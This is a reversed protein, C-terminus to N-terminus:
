DLPIRGANDALWDDLTQLEPNLARARDLDRVGAYEAAFDRNFQFMNGLEDAGPFGFGRYVDPDVDVYRVQEGLAASLKAAIQAGTLHEGAIAITQGFYEDGARFIGHATKGIDKAAIAPLVEDGMPFAITLVGDEGRKPGLGFYIFNEWYFATRLFTTPVNANCFFADAEAKADFHPVRYTGQLMPMREDGETVWGRTDELTSWIVHGLGAEAAATAMTRAHRQETQPSFDAWFFTVCFAGHAGDFAAQVTEPADLDGQVVEVNPLAALQKAADSGPDRTIARAVFERDPDAAISRVLGGGQAGTAGIVVITKQGNM